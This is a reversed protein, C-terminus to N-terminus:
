WRAVLVFDQDTKDTNEPIGDGPLNHAVVRIRYRGGIPKPLYVNELNNRRDPKRGTASRGKEFVNGHWRRVVRRSRGILEVILDLDNVLM